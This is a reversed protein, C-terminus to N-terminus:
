VSASSAFPPIPTVQGTHDIQYASTDDQKQVRIKGGTEMIILEFDSPELDRMEAGVGCRVFDQLSPYQGSERMAVASTAAGVLRCEVFQVPEQPEVLHGKVEVAYPSGGGDFLMNRFRLGTDGAIHSNAHLALSALGNGVLQGDAYDFSNQFSGHQIGFASNHYGTFRTVTNQDGNKQWVFIGNRKNNHAICDEFTWVGNVPEPPWTFAAATTDGHVGTAVCGRATNGTGKGLFFGSLEHQNRISHSDVKAAVCQEWLTDKTPDGEDWWFPSELVEYAICRKFRIGHSTHPVFAHNGADRVVVGQVTSGRSGGYSHHFHLAYRGLVESSPPTPDERPGLHRLVAYKVTQPMASHIFIHSRGGPKGGISVNRTLNLVETTHLRGEITIGPHDFSAPSDFAVNRGAIASIRRHDFANYHEDTAPGTPTLVIEDGVKWGVPDRDLEVSTAGAPVSATARAWPEKAAGVIVVAGHHMIWLGVDTKLVQHGGGIFRSEDIGVFAIRHNVDDSRPRMELGGEVVINGKTTLTRSAGPSFVLRGGHRIVVGAVRADVDLLVPKSIVAVDRPGPMRGGWTSAKSWRALGRALAPAHRSVVVSVGTAGALELFRRRTLSLDFLDGSGASGHL